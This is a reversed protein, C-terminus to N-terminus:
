AARVKGAFAEAKEHLTDLKRALDAATSQVQASIQGSDKAATDLGRIHETVTETSASMTRINRSIEDSAGRQNEIASAIAGSITSIERITGAIREIAAVSDKTAGQIASVQRVIDETAKSTQTALSKVESAVVAFGKGAEGARAAEITANLALLNTQGAIDNILKVVDGIKQAADALGEVTVNAQEADSVAQAAVTTSKGVQQNIEANSAALKDAAVNGSAISSTTHGVADAAASTKDKAATSAAALGDAIQQFSRMAGAIEGVVAGVDGQFSGALDDLEQRRRSAAQDRNAKQEQAMAGERQKAEEAAALAQASVVFLTKVRYTLWMLVGCELVVIIAHLVVRFFSAGDPFVAAPLVFNLVLHHVATVAAAALITAWDCYAALLAFSAFYYMHVDIQRAAPATYVLVSVVAVYAVAITYRTADGIRSMWWAATATAALIATLVTPALVSHDGAWAVAAVIPVHSWLLAILLRSTAERLAALDKPIM